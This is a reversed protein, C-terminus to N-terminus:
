IKLFKKKFGKYSQQFLTLLVRGVVGNFSMWLKKGPSKAKFFYLFVDVSPPHGLHNCLITFVRVFAWSNPHLQASAVKVETLLAREFGTFPICLKLRKFVTTYMFFFPEDLDARDDACVPVGEKCPMVKLYADLEKEFVHFKDQSESEKYKEIDKFSKMQSTEALLEDPAWDYLTKYNVSPPHNSTTKTRAM